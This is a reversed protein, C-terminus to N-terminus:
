RRRTLEPEFRERIEALDARTLDKDLTLAVFKDVQPDIAARLLGLFHPAAVLYLHEYAQDRAGRELVAALERAFKQAEVEKPDTEPEAGPRGHAGQQGGAVSAPVPGVPKRGHADAMLDRVRARSEPHEFAEVQTLRVPKGRRVEAQFLRARSADGALIWTITKATM